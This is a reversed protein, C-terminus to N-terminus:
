HRSNAHSAMARRCFRETGRKSRPLFYSADVAVIAMKLADTVTTADTDIVYEILKKGRILPMRNTRRVRARWKGPEQEFPQIDFEKYEM